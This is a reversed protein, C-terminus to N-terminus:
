APPNATDVATEETSLAQVASDLAAQDEPSLHTGPNDKAANYAAILADVKGDFETVKTALDSITSMTYELAKALWAYQNSNLLFIGGSPPPGPNASPM